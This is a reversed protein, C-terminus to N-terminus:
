PTIFGYRIAKAIAEPMTRAGLKERARRAHLDVTVKAIGLKEAIRDARMGVGMYLLVDMERPSLSIGGDRKRAAVPELSPALSLAATVLLSEALESRETYGAGKENGGFAVVFSEIGNTASAAQVGFGLGFKMGADAAGALVEQTGEAVHDARSLPVADWQISNIVGPEAPKLIKEVAYDLKDFRRGNYEDMWDDSMNSMIVAQQEGKIDRTAIGLNTVEFGFSAALECLGRFRADVDAQDDMLLSLYRGLAGNLREIAMGGAKSM